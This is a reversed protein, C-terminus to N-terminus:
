FMYAVSVTYLSIAFTIVASSLSWSLWYVGHSVGVASLGHRLRQEKERVLEGIFVIFLFIPTM